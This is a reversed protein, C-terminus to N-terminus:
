RRLRLREEWARRVQDVVFHVKQPFGEEREAIRMFPRFQQEVHSLVWQGSLIVLVAANFSYSRFGYWRSM